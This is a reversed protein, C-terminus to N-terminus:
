DPITRFWVPETWAESEHVRFCECQATQGLRDSQSSTKEVATGAMKDAGGPRGGAPPGGAEVYHSIRRQQIRPDDGVIM